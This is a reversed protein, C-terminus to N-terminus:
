PYTHFSSILSHTFLFCIPFPDSNLLIEWSVMERMTDSSGDSTIQIGLVGLFDDPGTVLVSEETADSIHSAAESSLYRCWIRVCTNVSSPRTGEFM